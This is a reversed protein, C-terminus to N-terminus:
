IMKKRKGSSHKVPDHPRSRAIRFLTQIIIIGDFSFNFCGAEFKFLCRSRVASRGIVLSIERKENSANVPLSEKKMRQRFEAASVRRGGVAVCGQM